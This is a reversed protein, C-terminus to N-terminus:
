AKPKIARIIASHMEEAVAHTPRVEVDVLGVAELGAKFESMSLAGAICGVYSGREARQAESLHDEAVIDTIGIRGGPRLVRAIETFAAGKDAALNVVCNSIVVDVSADELPVAEITGKIFAVNTAAASAANQRALELMEDTMDLGYAYGKPGVRRASLLVDIGGGSGLDLVIEGPLLEAVAVPNGCGLSALSAAAPITGLEGETYLSRATEPELAVAPPCCADMDDAGCCPSAAQEDQGLVTLAADAYRDRVVEHIRQMDPTTTTM